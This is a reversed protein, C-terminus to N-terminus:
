CADLHCIVEGNADFQMWPDTTGPGTDTAAANTRRRGLILSPGQCLRAEAREDRAIRQNWGATTTMFVVVVGEGGRSRWSPSPPVSTHPSYRALRDLFAVLGARSSAIESPIGNLECTLECAHRHLDRGLGALCRLAWALLLATDESPDAFAWDDLRLVVRPRVLSQRESVILMDRRASLPWHVRRLSDGTRYARATWTDGDHGARDLFTGVAALNQNGLLALPKLEIYRPWALLSRELVVDRTATWLGFPFGTTLQPTALPYEGRQPPRFSFQFETSSWGTVRALSAVSAGHELQSDPLVGELRLGWVSVPWLNVVRLHLGIVDEEYAHRQDFRLEARLGRLAVWPWAVGLLMVVGIVASVVWGQQAVFLGILIAAFNAVVLWGIPQKLWYVYRNAWPCFDYEGLRVLRQAWVRGSAM